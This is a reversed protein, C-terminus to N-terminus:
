LDSSNEPRSDMLQQIAIQGVRFFLGCAGQVRTPKGFNKINTQNNGTM